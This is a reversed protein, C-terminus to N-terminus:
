DRFHWESFTKTADLIRECLAESFGRKYPYLYEKSLTNGYVFHESEFSLYDESFDYGLFSFV